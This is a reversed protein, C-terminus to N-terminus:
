GRFKARTVSIKLSRRLFTRQSRFHCRLFNRAFLGLPKQFFIVKQSSSTLSELLCSDCKAVCGHGTPLFSMFCKSVVVTDLWSLVVVARSWRDELFYLREANVSLGPARPSDSSPHSVFGGNFTGAAQYPLDTQLLRKTSCFSHLRCFSLTVSFFLTLLGYSMTYRGRLPWFKLKRRFM